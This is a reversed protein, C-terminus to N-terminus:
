SPLGGPVILEDYVKIDPIYKKLEPVTEPLSVEPESLTGTTLRCYTVWISDPDSVGLKIGEELANIAKDIGSIVTMKTFLKLIQKKREYGSKDLYEKLIMEQNFDEKKVYKKVTEFNHGTIGSIERLSKGEFKRMNKIRYVQEMTLM